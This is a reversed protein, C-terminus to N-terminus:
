PWDEGAVNQLLQNHEVAVTPGSANYIGYGLCEAIINDRVIGHETVHQPTLPHHDALYIGSQQAPPHPQTGALTIHNHTLSFRRAGNVYIGAMGVSKIQNLSVIQDSAQNPNANDDDWGLVIAPGDTNTIRNATIRGAAQVAIGPDGVGDIVNGGIYIGDLGWHASIGYGAITRLYNHDISLDLSYAGASGEWAAVGCSSGSGPPIVGGVWGISTLRNRSVRTRHANTDLRIGHCAVDHIDNEVIDCDQATAASIGASASSTKGTNLVENGRVTTNRANYISIGFHSQGDCVNGDIRSRRWSTAAVAGVGGVIKCNTVRIRDRYQGDAPSTVAYQWGSLLVDDVTVDKTTQALRIGDVPNNQLPTSLTIRELIIDHEAIIDFMRWGAPRDPAAILEGEGWIRRHSDLVIPETITIQVDGPIYVNRNWTLADTLSEQTVVGDIAYDRVNATIRNEDLVDGYALIADTVANVAEDTVTM